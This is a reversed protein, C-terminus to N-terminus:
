YDFILWRRSGDDWGDDVRDLYEFVEDFSSMIHTHPVMGFLWDPAAKKGQKCVILCPKKQDNMTSLEDYTGCAHIPIDIYFIGFDAKDCMRLDVHRITRMFEVLKDYQGESKWQKRLERHEHEGAIKIPKSMPNYSIVGYRIDLQKTLWERWEIGLNPCRDIAGSLYAITNYLKKM